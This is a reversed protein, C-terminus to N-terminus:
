QAVFARIDDADFPWGLERGTAEEVLVPIRVAYKEMLQDDFAIDEAELQHLAPDLTQCLLATADDCLHCGVTTMLVFNRLPQEAM